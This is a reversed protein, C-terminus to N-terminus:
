APCEPWGGASAAPPDADGELGCHRAVRIAREADQEATRASLKAVLISESSFSSGADGRCRKLLHSLLRVLLLPQKVWFLKWIRDRSTEVGVMAQRLHQAPNLPKDLKHM